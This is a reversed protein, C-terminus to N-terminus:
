ADKALKHQKWVSPLVEAFYQDLEHQFPKRSGISSRFEKWEALQVHAADWSLRPSFKVKYKESVLEVCDWLTNWFETGDPADKHGFWAWKECIIDAACYYQHASQFPGARSDGDAKEKAQQEPTRFLIFIRPAYGARQMEKCIQDALFGMPGDGYNMRTVRKRPARMAPDRMQQVTKQVLSRQKLKM